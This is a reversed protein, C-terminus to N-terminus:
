IPVGDRVEDLKQRARGWYPMNKKDTSFQELVKIAREDGRHALVNLLEIYAFADPYKKPENLFRPAFAIIEDSAHPSSELLIEFVDQGILKKRAVAELLFKSQEEPPMKFSDFLIKQGPALHCQGLMESVDVGQKAQQYLLDFFEDVASRAAVSVKYYDVRMQATFEDMQQLSLGPAALVREVKARGKLDRNEIRAIAMRVAFAREGTSNGISELTRKWAIDDNAPLTKEQARLLNLAIPDELRGLIRVSQIQISDIPHTAFPLVEHAVSRSKREWWLQNLQTKARFFEQRTEALTKGPLNQPRIEAILNTAVEQDHPNRAVSLLDSASRLVVAGVVVVIAPILFRQVRFNETKM